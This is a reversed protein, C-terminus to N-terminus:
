SWIAEHYIMMQFNCPGSPEDNLQGVRWSAWAKSLSPWTFSIMQHCHKANQSFTPCITYYNCYVVIGSLECGCRLTLCAIISRPEEGFMLGNGISSVIPIQRSLITSCGISTDLKSPLADNVRLKESALMISTLYLLSLEIRSEHGWCLMGMLRTEEALCLYASRAEQVGITHMCM